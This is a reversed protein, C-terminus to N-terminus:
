RSSVACRAYEYGFFWGNLPALPLLFVFEIFAGCHKTHISGAYDFREVLFVSIALIVLNAAIAIWVIKRRLEPRRQCLIANGILVSAIAPCAYTVFMDVPISLHAVSFILSGLISSLICLPWWGVALLSSRSIRKRNDTSESEYIIKIALWQSMVFLFGDLFTVVDSDAIWYLFSFASAAAASGAIAFIVGSKFPVVRNMAIGM